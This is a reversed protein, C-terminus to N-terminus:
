DANAGAHKEQPVTNQVEVSCFFFCVSFSLLFVVDGRRLRGLDGHVAESPHVFNSPQGLSSFTASIKGGVLGSKGMGSVVVHGDCDELIDLAACWSDAGGSVASALRTIGEAETRLVESIFELEDTRSNTRTSDSM